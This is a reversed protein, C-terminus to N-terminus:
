ILHLGNKKAHREVKGLLYRSVLTYIIAFIILIAWEHTVPLVTQWDGDFSYYRILDYAWTFPLIYAFYQIVQPFATIPIYAGALMEFSLEIIGAISTVQRWLIGLLAIMVGMALLAVFVTLCVLLIMVMNPIDVGSVVVLLLFIPLFAIQALLIDSLVTGAFYAYRSFPNSYLFELTGNYLDRTVANLPTWLATGKFVFLVMAGLFFIFLDQGTMPRGLSAAGDFTTINALLLFFLLRIAIQIVMGVLNPLYRRSVSLDKWTTAKLIAWPSVPRSLSSVTEPKIVPQEILKGMSSSAQM